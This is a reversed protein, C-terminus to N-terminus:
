NWVGSSGRRHSDVLHTDIIGVAEMLAYMTTPGVFAFGKKRLAKSLAISEPSTTPIDALTKPAPTKDPKFSWVFDVLGGEERLAITAKANTITARIKLRNRVIGADLMLREVDAETFTAVSEPHFDLFAERFAERKRLITAWSLGAQFGELSIREYLGQEDRVPMGWEHDYYAQMLPDSAAWAPRALGDGGIVTGNEAPNM